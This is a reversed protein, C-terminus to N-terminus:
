SRRVSIDDAGTAKSVDLDLILKMLLIRMLQLLTLLNLVHIHEQDNINSEIDDYVSRLQILSIIMLHM